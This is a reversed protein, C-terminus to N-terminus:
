PFGKASPREVDLTARSMGGTVPPWTERFPSSGGLIAAFQQALRARSLAAEKDWADLM